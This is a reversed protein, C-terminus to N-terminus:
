CWADAGDPGLVVGDILIYHTGDDVLAIVPQHDIAISHSIRKGAQELDTFPM